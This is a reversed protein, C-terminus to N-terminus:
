LMSLLNRKISVRNDHAHTTYRLSDHWTKRVISMKVVTSCVIIHAAQVGVGLQVTIRQATNCWVGHHKTTNGYHKM